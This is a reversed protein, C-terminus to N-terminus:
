GYSDTGSAALRMLLSCYDTLTWRSVWSGVKPMRGIGTEYDSNTARQFSVTYGRDSSFTSKGSERLAQRM